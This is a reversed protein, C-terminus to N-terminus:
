VPFNIGRVETAQRTKFVCFHAKQTKIVRPVYAAIRPLGAFQLADAHVANPDAHPHTVTVIECYFSIKRLHQMVAGLKTRHSAAGMGIAPM